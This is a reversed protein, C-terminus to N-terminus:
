IMGKNENSKNTRHRPLIPTGRVSLKTPSNNANYPAKSINGITPTKAQEDITKEAAKKEGLLSNTINIANIM